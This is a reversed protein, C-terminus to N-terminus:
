SEALARAAHAIAVACLALAAVTVVRLDVLAALDRWLLPPVTIWAVGLAFAVVAGVGLFDLLEPLPSPGAAALGRTRERVRHLVAPSLRVGAYDVSLRADIERLLAAHAACSACGAVHADVLRRREIPLDQYDLLLDELETCTIM